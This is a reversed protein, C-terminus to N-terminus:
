SEEESSSYVKMYGEFAIVSGTLKFTYDDASLEVNTSNILANAMQSSIFREWIIKYVKYQDASLYKKISEPTKDIYTPRIAEHADQVNKTKKSTYNQAEKPYYNEGYTDTIFNKAAEVAEDSVRTSDTRMYTILGIPTDDGLEIGEYLKQAIQM